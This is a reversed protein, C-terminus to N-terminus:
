KLAYNVIRTIVPLLGDICKKMLWTTSRALLEQMNNVLKSVDDQSREQFNDLSNTCPPDAANPLSM